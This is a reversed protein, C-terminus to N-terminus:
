RRHEVFAMQRIWGKGQCAEELAERGERRRVAWQIAKTRQGHDDTFTLVHGENIKTHDTLAKNEQHVGTTVNGVLVNSKALQRLDRNAGDLEHLDNSNRCLWVVRKWDCPNTESFFLNHAKLPGEIAAIPVALQLIAMEAIQLQNAMWRVYRLAVEEQPTFYVTCTLGAFDGPPWSYLHKTILRGTELSYADHCQFSLCGKYIMVHGPLDKPPVATQEGLPEVPGEASAPTGNATQMSSGLPAASTTASVGPLPLATSSSIPATQRPSPDLTQREELEMLEQLRVELGELANYDAEMAQLVWYKLTETLRIDKYEPDMIATRLRRNIGWAKMKGHWDEDDHYGDLESYEISSCAFTIVRPEGFEERFGDDDPRNVAELYSQWASEAAAETLGIFLLTEKSNLVYPIEIFPDNSSPSLPVTTM